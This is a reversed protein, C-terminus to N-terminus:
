LSFSFFFKRAVAMGIRFWFPEITRAVQKLSERIPISQPCRPECKGCDICGRATGNKSRLVGTNLIYQNRKKDTCYSNYAAFCGPINVGVPCPMCYDCGTCAISGVEKFAASVREILACDEQTMCGPYSATSAAINDELESMTRMGSLVCSVEEHNWLWRLAFQAASFRSNNKFIEAAKPPIRRPDALLGGRLPEMIIVPIGKSHAYNLGTAGAQNNVDLYNYQIMCFQWDYADILKVFDERKGHFSFGIRRIQGSQMKASIWKDLGMAFLRSLEAPTDLMHLLYYDVYDTKLRALQKTFIKDFDDSNKCLFLPLKTAISVKERLRNKHLIKGLLAEKGPYIYATDFYNIGNEIAALVLKESEEFNDPLRMCGYGLKPLEDRYKVNKSM